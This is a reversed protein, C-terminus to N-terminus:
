WYTCDKADGSGGCCPCRQIEGDVNWDSGSWDQGVIGWGDGGCQWCERDDEPDYLDDYPIPQSESMTTELDSITM